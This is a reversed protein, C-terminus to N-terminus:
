RMHAGAHALVSSVNTVSPEHLRSLAAETVDFASSADVDMVRDFDHPDLDSTHPHQGIGANNVLHDLGGFAGTAGAVLRAAGFRLAVARGIGRSSGTVIAAPM